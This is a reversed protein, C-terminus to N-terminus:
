PTDVLDGAHVQCGGGHVSILRERLQSDKRLLSDLNAQAAARVTQECSEMEATRGWASEPCETALQKSLEAQARRWEALNADLAERLPRNEAECRTAVCPAQAPPQISYGLGLYFEEYRRQSGMSDPGPKMHLNVRVKKDKDIRGSPNHTEINAHSMPELRQICMTWYVPGPCNNTLIIDYEKFQDTLPTKGRVASSMCSFDVEAAEVVALSGALIAAIVTRRVISAVRHQQMDM